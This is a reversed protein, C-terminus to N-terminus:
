RDGAGQAKEGIGGYLDGQLVRVRGSVDNLMANFKAFRVARESIDVCTVRRGYLKAAAIGQIGSGCCLDLVEEEEKWPAHHVLGLSDPGIYMVPEEELATSCPPMLDTAFLLDLSGCSGMLACPDVPFLQVNPALLAPLAPCTGILGLRTMSSLVQAGLINRVEEEPLSLGLLLLRIIVDLADKLPTQVGFLHAHRHDFRRRVYFPGTTRGGELGFREQVSAATYPVSRLFDRFIGAETAAKKQEEEGARSSFGGLAENVRGSTAFKGDWQGWEPRLAMARNFCVLAKRRNEPDRAVLLSAIRAAHFWGEADEPQIRLHQELHELAVDYKGEEEMAVARLVGASYRSQESGDRLAARIVTLRTRTNGSSGERTLLSSSSGPRPRPPCCVLSSAPPELLKILSCSFSSTHSTLTTLVMVLLMTTTTRNTDPM